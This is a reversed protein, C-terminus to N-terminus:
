RRTFSSGSSGTRGSCRWRRATSTADGAGRAGGPLDQVTDSHSMWVQSQQSVGEFLGECAEPMLMAPGYERRDSAKVTGGFKINLLQMGYCVGLVPVESRGCRRSTSTRRMRSAPARRGARCSSRGRSRRHERFDELAYLKAFYGLERVRRVILQTYQSGFDIVAVHNTEHM